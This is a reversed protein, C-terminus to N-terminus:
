EIEGTFVFELNTIRGTTSSYDMKTCKFKAKTFQIYEYYKYMDTGNQDIMTEYIDKAVSYQNSKIIDDGIKYKNSNTATQYNKTAVNMNIIEDKILNNDGTIRSQDTGKWSWTISGDNTIDATYYRKLSNSGLIISDFKKILVDIYKNKNKISNIEDLINSLNTETKKNIANQGEGKIVM